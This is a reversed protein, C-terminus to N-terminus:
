KGHYKKVFYKFGNNLYHKFYKINIFLILLGLLYGAMVDSLYHVGLYMRSFGIAIIQVALLICLIYKYKFRPSIILLYIIFGYLAMAISSHGSPFSYNLGHIVGSIPRTRQFLDKLYNTLCSTLLLTSILLIIEKFKKNILLVIAVSVAIIEVNRSDAFSTIFSFIKIGFDTRQTLLFSVISHDTNNNFFTQLM